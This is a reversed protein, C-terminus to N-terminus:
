PLPVRATGQIEPYRQRLQLQLPCYIGSEQGGHGGLFSVGQTLYKPRLLEWLIELAKIAGQLLHKLSPLLLFFETLRRRQCRRPAFM